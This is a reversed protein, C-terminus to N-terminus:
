FFSNMCSFKVVGCVFAKANYSKQFFDGDLIPTLLEVYLYLAFNLKKHAVIKYKKNLIPLQWVNSICTKGDCAFLTPFSAFIGYVRGLLKNQLLFKIKTTIAASFHSQYLQSVTFDTLM